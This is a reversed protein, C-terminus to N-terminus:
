FNCPFLYVFPSSFLSSHNSCNRLGCPLWDLINRSTPNQLVKLSSPLPLTIAMAIERLLAHFICTNWHIKQTTWVTTTIFGKINYCKLKLECPKLFFAAKTRLSALDLAHSFFKIVLLVHLIAPLIWLSSFTAKLCHLPSLDPLMCPYTIIKWQFMCNREVIMRM